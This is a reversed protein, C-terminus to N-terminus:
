GHPSVAIVIDEGIVNLAGLLKIEIMGGANTALNGVLKKLPIQVEMLTRRSFFKYVGADSLMSTTAFPNRFMLLPYFYM